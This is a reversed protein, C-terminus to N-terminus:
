FESEEDEDEEVEPEPPIYGTWDSPAEEGRGEVSYTGEQPDFGIWVRDEPKANKLSDKIAKRMESDGFGTKEFVEFRTITDTEDFLAVVTAAKSAKKKGGTGGTSVKPMALKALDKMEDTVVGDKDTVILQLLAKTAANREDRRAKIVAKQEETYRQKEAM